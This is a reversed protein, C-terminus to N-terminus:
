VGSLLYKSLKPAAALLLLLKPIIPLPVLEALISFSLIKELVDKSISSLLGTPPGFVVFM